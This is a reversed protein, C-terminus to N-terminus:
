EERDFRRACVFLYDSLRNLWRQAPGLEPRAGARILAVLRREARRAVARAWDLCAGEPSGGPLAFSRGLDVRALLAKEASELREIDLDSPGRGPLGAAAAGLEQLTTQIDALDLPLPEVRGAPAAALRSRCVGLVSGLEDLDGLCEFAPDDKPRRGGSYLSSEGDDGARTTLRQFDKESM